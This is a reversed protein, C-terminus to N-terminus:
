IYYQSDKSDKKYTHPLYVSHYWGAREDGWRYSMAEILVPKSKAVCIDRAAKTANYTAFVDTGDVRIFVMGYGAARSVVGLKSQFSSLFGDVILDSNVTSVSVTSM